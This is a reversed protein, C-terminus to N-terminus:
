VLQSLLFISAAVGVLIYSIRAYWTIERGVRELVEAPTGIYLMMDPGFRSKETTLSDTESDYTGIVCAFTDVPVYEENLNLADSSDVGGPLFFDHQVEREFSKRALDLANMCVNLSDMPAESELERLKSKAPESYKGLEELRLDDEVTPFAGLRLRAKAGEIWTPRIHVGAAVMKGTTRTPATNTNRRVSIAYHHSACAKQTIPSVLPEGDVRLQGAFAITKGHDSPGPRATLSKRICGMNLLDVVNWYLLLIGLILCIAGAIGFFTGFGREIGSSVLMVYGVALAGAAVFVIATKVSALSTM